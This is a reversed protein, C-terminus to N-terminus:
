NKIYNMMYKYSLSISVGDEEVTESVRLKEEIDLLEEISKNKLVSEGKKMLKRFLFQRKIYLINVAQVKIKTM